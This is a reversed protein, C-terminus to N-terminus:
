PTPKQKTARLAARLTAAPLTRNSATFHDTYTGPSIKHGIFVVWSYQGDDYLAGKYLSWGHEMRNVLEGLQADDWMKLIENCLEITQATGSTNIAALAEERIQIVKNKDM